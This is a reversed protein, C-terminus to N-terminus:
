ACYIYIHSKGGLIKVLNIGFPSWRVETEAEWPGLLEPFYHDERNQFILSIPPDWYKNISYLELGTLGVPYPNVYRPQFSFVPLILVDVIVCIKTQIESFPDVHDNSLFWTIEICNEFHNIDM